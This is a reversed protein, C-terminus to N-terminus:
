SAATILCLVSGSRNDLAIAFAITGSGPSVQVFDEQRGQHFFVLSYSPFGANTFHFSLHMVSTTLLVVYYQTKKATIDDVFM